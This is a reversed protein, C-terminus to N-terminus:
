PRSAALAAAFAAGIEPAHRQLAGVLAQGAQRGRPTLQVLLARRDDPDPRRTVLRADELHGLRTSVAGPTIGLTRALHGPRTRDAGLLAALTYRETVDRRVGFEALSREADDVYHEGAASLMAGASLTDWRAAAESEARSSGSGLQAVLEALAPRTRDLYRGLGADFARVRESGLPTLEVVRRRGDGLHGTRVVLGHSELRALHRSMQSRDVGQGDALAGPSQPGARHLRLLTSIERNGAGAGFAEQAVHTLGVSYEHLLLLARVPSAADATVRPM